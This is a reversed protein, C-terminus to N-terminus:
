LCCCLLPQLKDLQGPTDALLAVTQRAGCGGLSVIGM